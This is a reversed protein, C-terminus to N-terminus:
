ASPRRGGSLSANPTLAARHAARLLRLRRTAEKMTISIGCLYDFSALVEAAALAMPDARGDPRNVCYRMAWELHPDAVPNVISHVAGGGTPVQITAHRGVDRDVPGSALEDDITHDQM